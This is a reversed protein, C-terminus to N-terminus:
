TEKREFCRQLKTRIKTSTLFVMLMVVQEVCIAISSPIVLSEGTVGALFLVVLIITGLTIAQASMLTISVRFYNPQGTVSGKCKTTLCYLTLAIIFFLMGVAIIIALIALLIKRGVKPERLFDACYGASNLTFATKNYLLDVIVLVMCITDAIVNVVGYCYLLKKNEEKYPRLAYTRYMLFAFHYLYTAKLMSYIITFITIIYKFVACTTSNGDFRYVYQFIATITVCLFLIIVTGCIGIIIVGPTTRLEKITLHLVTNLSSSSVIIFSIVVFFIFYGIEPDEISCYSNSSAVLVLTFLNTSNTVTIWDATKNIISLSVNFEKLRITCENVFCYESDNLSIWNEHQLLEAIESSCPEGQVSIFCITSLCFVLCFPLCCLYQILWRASDMARLELTSSHIVRPGNIRSNFCLIHNSTTHM